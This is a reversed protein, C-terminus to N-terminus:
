GKGDLANWFTTNFHFNQWRKTTRWFTKLRQLSTNFYANFNLNSKEKRGTDPCSSNFQFNSHQKQLMLMYTNGDGFSGGDENTVNILVTFFQCLLHKPDTVQKSLLSFILM